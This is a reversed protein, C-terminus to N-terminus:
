QSYTAKLNFVETDKGGMRYKYIEDGRLFDFAARGEDIAHDILRALLVIGPSLAAGKDPNLGSNYVLIRNDYDFNVYAAVPDGAIELFALQLWGAEYAAPVISKFFQVHQPDELFAAKEPHSSAMLELFQAIKEDLDHSDDVIYWQTSAEPGDAIRLKRVVDKGQKKDLSKIYAPFKDPLAIVPCVEQRETAVDFGRETLLKSLQTYTPSAAPINCLDIADFQDRQELLAAALSDYVADSHNEDVLMDVYDTVDECGVFHLTRGQETEAIFMSSVGRLVDEDDRVTMVWLDGPHYAQWWYKHWQQTSFPTNTVSRALLDQWESALNDFIAADTAIELKVSETREHISPDIALM